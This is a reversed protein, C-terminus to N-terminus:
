TLKLIRIDEVDFNELIEAREKTSAVMLATSLVEAEVPDKSQVCVLKNEKNAQGTHPNILHKNYSPTNGSTSMSSDRLAVEGVVEGKKFPNEISVKWSDGYPHHGLGAISSNGFNIFAQKISTEQLYQNIKKLAYGKAYAGLDLSCDPHLFSVTQESESLVVKTMDKLSIDFFGKTKDNYLQCDILIDWLEKSPKVAQQYAHKNIYSLESNIDFRNFLKDLRKLETKIYSWVGIADDYNKEFFLIDLRTGMISMMSGHFMENLEYYQFDEVM